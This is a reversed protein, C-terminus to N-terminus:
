KFELCLALRFVRYEVGLICYNFSTMKSFAPQWAGAHFHYFGNGGPSCGLHSCYFSMRLVGPLTGSVIQGWTCGVQRKRFAAESPGLFPGAAKELPM